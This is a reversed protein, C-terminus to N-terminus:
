AGTNSTSPQRRRQLQAIVAKRESRKMGVLAFAAFYVLAATGGELIIWLFSNSPQLQELGWAVLLSPILPPLSPGVATVFFRIISVGRSICARPVIILMEVTFAAILTALAVGNIGYHQILVISLGLNLLASGAMALAIFRHEGNFALVNAANLQVATFLMAGLLIQLVPAAGAFEDGMWLLIIDEAYFFLLAAFPVAIALCYRTGDMLIRNITAEDKRGRSQSILPMLGNSFQKNLYYVYEAIKSGIAYVAVATLPLFSKIVIPDIRLILMVAVNAIFFFFSFGLLERVRHRSFLRPSMSLGPTLWFSLVMALAPSLVMTATTVIILGLIGHGAELVMVVAVANALMVILDIGNLLSIRGSGNLVAKFLNLPLNIAVAAGLLWLAIYFAQQAEDTIEFWHGANGAVIGVLAICIVGLATYVVLLTALTQNRGEADGSGTFEGMYKVAATAFGLDLLGFLGIISFILSWLGFMEMGIKSVIYPTLFFVVVIGIVLRLYSTAINLVWRM